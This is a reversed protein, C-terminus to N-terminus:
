LRCNNHMIYSRIVAKQGWSECRRETKGTDLYHKYGEYFSFIAEKDTPTVEKWDTARKYLM